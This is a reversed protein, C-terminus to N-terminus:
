ILCIHGIGFYTMDRPQGGQTANYNFNYGSPINTRFCGINNTDPNYYISNITYVGDLASGTNSIQFQSGISTANHPPRTSTVGDSLYPIICVWMEGDGTEHVEELPYCNPPLDSYDTGTGNGSTRAKNSNMLLYGIILVALGIIVIMMTNNKKKAM